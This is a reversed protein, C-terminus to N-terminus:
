VVGVKKLIAPLSLYKKRAEVSYFDAHGCSKCVFIKYPKGFFKMEPEGCNVCNRGIFPKPKLFKLMMGGTSKIKVGM